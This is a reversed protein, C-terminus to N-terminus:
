KAASVKEVVKASINDADNALFAVANAQLIIDFKEEAAVANITQKIVNLIKNREEATRRRIEQDLPKAKAAYEERLELTKKVLEEKEEASMTAAEKQQKTMYFKIDQELRSVAEIRDKFEARITSDIMAAQPLQQFVAQVDIVGVKQAASAAGTTLALALAAAVTFKKM